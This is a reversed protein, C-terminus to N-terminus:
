HVSCPLRRGFAHSQWMFALVEDQYDSMREILNRVKTQKPKGRRGPPSNQHPNLSKAIALLAKYQQRYYQRMQWSLSSENKMKATEVRKDIRLLLDKMKLAWDQKDNEYVATLERILHSNCM